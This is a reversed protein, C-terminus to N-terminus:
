CLNTRPSKNGRSTSSAWVPVAPCCFYLHRNGSIRWAVSSRGLECFWGLGLAFILVAFPILGTAVTFQIPGHLGHLLIDTPPYALLLACAASGTFAWYMPKRVL